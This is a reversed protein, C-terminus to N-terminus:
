PAVRAVPVYMDGDAVVGLDATVSAGVVEITTNDILRAPGVRAAVAILTAGDLDTRPELTAPDVAEVYEVGILPDGSLEAAIVSRLAAADRLGAEVADAGVCLSRFLAGAAARGEEGLYVNRSSMAVGDPERVLPCGIVEVPLNLDSTMRRVVALQQADKRGFYARCPGTIMFLKTVVSTVGDFHTPRDAGCLRATLGEVHVTTRGPEPYIEAVDPAFLLDACASAAVAEDGERDRPYAALDENPAFQTPNVFLSVVVRDCEERAIEMLSRHGAHFAGMTPVLGVVAGARRWEDCTSRVDAITQVTRM